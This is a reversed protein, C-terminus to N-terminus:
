YLAELLAEPTLQNLNWVKSWRADLIIVSFKLFVVFNHFQTQYFNEFFRISKHEMEASRNKLWIKIKEYNYRKSLQM